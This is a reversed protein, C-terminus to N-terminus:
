SPRGKLKTAQDAERVRNIQEKLPPNANSGDDAKAAPEDSRNM